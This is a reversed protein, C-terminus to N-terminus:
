VGYRGAAGVEDVPEVLLAPTHLYRTAARKADIDDYVREVQDASLGVADAVEAPPLDHNRGYLCLDMKDYPLAFYFEEQSQQLPYTDTTPPRRRIEIPIDLYEALQYVQTKYLHAIPKVDAAGDGGKVFFGQDYELRNPTGVVAYHRLDAHYYEIMKRTRQKFNTAAVIGLHAQATLRARTEVGEPSRVVVSFTSYRDRALLGPLVLKCRYGPGYGPFVMRIAADRREYCGAAELIPGIDELVAEIGLAEALLRGLELTEGASDVEPMFLGVVRERGLARVCLAAAVSSDIGGSLGIVAGRRRLRKFVQERVVAAIRAVEAPPDLGLTAPSLRAGVAV